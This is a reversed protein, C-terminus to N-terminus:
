RSLKEYKGNIVIGTVYLGHYDFITLNANYGSEIRGLRDHVGLYEAPYTSAMRLAEDIPIGVKQVCNRVASAMDLASGALVGDKTTCKGGECIVEIDGLKFSHSSKGVPPMADTVLFLKNWKAKKCIKISSFHVHFGDVIIGAWIDDNELAAGVLGPDRSGFQSMENFIHTISSVDSKFANIAQQYTANSHGAAVKVGSNVLIELYKIDVVEPAITMIKIVNQKETGFQHMEGKKLIANFEEDQVRRICKKSHVGSKKENLYPGEMHLGLVGYRGDSLCARVTNIANIINEYSTSIVTPLFNTTGFKKHAEFIGSIAEETPDDAFLYGGGGNVQLDIFGPAVSDGNLDIINKDDITSPVKSLDVLREIVSNEIIIAKDYVTEKGTYIDCNVLAYKM